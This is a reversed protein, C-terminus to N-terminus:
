RRSGCATERKIPEGFNKAYRIDLTHRCEGGKKYCHKKRCNEVEGNCLYCVTYGEEPKEEKTEEAM